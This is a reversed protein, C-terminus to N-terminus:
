MDPNPEVLATLLPSATHKLLDCRFCDRLVRVLAGHSRTAPKKKKALEQELTEPTGHGAVQGSSSTPQCCLERAERSHVVEADGTRERATTGHVATRVSFCRTYRRARTWRALLRCGTVLRPCLRPDRWPLHPPVSPPRTTFRSDRHHGTTSVCAFYTMTCPAAPKLQELSARESESRHMARYAVLLARRYASALASAGHWRM